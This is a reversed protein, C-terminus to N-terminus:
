RTISGRVTVTLPAGTRPRAEVRYYPSREAMIAGADFFTDTSGFANLQLNCSYEAARAPDRGGTANFEVTVVGSYSGATITFPPASAGNGMPAGFAPAVGPMYVGCSVQGRTFGPHLGRLEVPVEITFDAGYAAGGLTALLLASLLLPRLKNKQKMPNKGYRSKKPPSSKM